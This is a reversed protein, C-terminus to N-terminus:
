AELVAVVELTRPDVVIIQDRVMFFEYGRWQPYITVVDAPLPHFEVGERPVRTGVSIAFNVNNAPAVRENRIVSTIRTRQETSLKAGAGAQGTTVGPRTNPGGRNEANANGSRDERGQANMNNERGDRTEAKMNKGGRTESESSMSKSKQGPMNEEAHQGKAAGPSKQESPTSAMGSSPQTNQNPMTAGGAAGGGAAPPASQMAAGGTERGGTGQANATAAGAILAFTAVSILFRNTM